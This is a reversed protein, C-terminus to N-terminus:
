TARELLDITWSDCVTEIARLRTLEAANAHEFLYRRDAPTALSGTM